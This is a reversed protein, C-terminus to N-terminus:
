TRRHASAARARAVLAALVDAHAQPVAVALSVPGAPSTSVDFGFFSCCETERQTLDTLRDTLGRAPLWRIVASTPSQQEAELADAFLADFEAVRLPQEATPLQCAHPVWGTDTSPKDAKM